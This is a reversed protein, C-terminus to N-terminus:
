SPVAMLRVSAIAQTNLTHVSRRKLWVLVSASNTADAMDTARMESADM